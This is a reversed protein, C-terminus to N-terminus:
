TERGEDWPTLGLRRRTGRYSPRLAASETTAGLMLDQSKLATQSLCLKIYLWDSKCKNPQMSISSAARSSAPCESSEAMLNLLVVEMNIPRVEVVEAM